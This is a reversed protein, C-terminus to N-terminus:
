KSAQSTGVRPENRRKLISLLSGIYAGLTEHVERLSQQVTQRNSVTSTSFMSTRTATKHNNTVLISFEHAITFSCGHLLTSSSGQNLNQTMAQRAQNLLSLYSIWM